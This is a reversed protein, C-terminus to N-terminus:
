VFSFEDIHNAPRTFVLPISRAVAEKALTKVAVKTTPINHEKGAGLFDGTQVSVALWSAEPNVEFFTDTSAEYASGISRIIELQLQPELAYFEDMGMGEISFPGSAVEVIPLNPFEQSIIEM